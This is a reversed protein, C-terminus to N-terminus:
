KEYDEYLELFYKFGEGIFENFDVILRSMKDM